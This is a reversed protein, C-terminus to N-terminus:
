PREMRPIEVRFAQDRDPPLRKQGAQYELAPGAAIPAMRLELAEAGRGTGQRRDIFVQANNKSLRLTAPVPEVPSFEAGPRQGYTEGDAAALEAELHFM